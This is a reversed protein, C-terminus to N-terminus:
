YDTNQPNFNAWGVTWDTTGFAGIYGVTEFGTLGTFSAGTLLTSGASPKFDPTIQNFANAINLTANDAVILNGKGAANFWTAVDFTSNAEVTLPSPLWCNRHEYNKLIVQLM